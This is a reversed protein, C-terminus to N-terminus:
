QQERSLMLWKLTTEFLKTINFPKTVVDNMGADLCRSRDDDFANGTLAIVPTTSGNPLTRIIKTADLGNMEPMQMDMFILDYQNTRVFDTAKIGNEAMDFVPSFTSLIDSILARNMPEDDVLLIRVGFYDRALIDAASLEGPYEHSNDVPVGKKLSVTFWFTSGVGPESIVGADGGMLNALKRTIALGLGTGGFKRTMSNDAQEFSNFLREATEASIGIGKDEVEFRLLADSTSDKELLTRVVISGSETFKVANSVYNMLSQQLRTVDGILQLNNPVPEVILQLGKKEASGSLISVVNNVINELDVVTEDIELKGAEIKSIDLVSNITELLHQSASDIVDLQEEQRPNVGSRRILYATGSIATLPTRIEHSMNALFSSKALTAKEAADRASSLEAIAEQLEATRQKVREELEEELRKRETIDTALGCLAYISGDERRLPMKTTLFTSEKGDKSLTNTEEFRLTVGQDLVNQDVQQIQTVTASDFFKEDGYGIIESSEVGWMKRLAKNAFQYKGDLDKLFIYADVNETIDHLRQESERLAIESLKRETIDRVSGRLGLFAGEANDVPQCRNEVWRLEKSKTIIRFENGAGLLNGPEINTFCTEMTSKDDPHVIKLMLENDEIFEQAKYGTVRECSPSVYRLKGTPAIWYEWDYTFEAITRYKEESSRLQETRQAVLSELFFRLRALELHTRVRARVEDIDYPKTIYDSAGIRFGSVKQEIEDAVTVFIIPISYGMPTDKIRRCVEYGDMGPMVVDLLILDPPTNGQVLELAKAGNTAVQIQYDAKLAEVLEHLNEPVDDVLLLTPKEGSDFNKFLGRSSPKKQASQLDLQTRVRLLLMEPDVPKVIYDVVGLRLGRGIDDNEGMSTIFVVPIESTSPDSRLHDLVAYGDMDPMKIDLLILDPHPVRKAIELAKAGSTAASIVYKDRLVNMLTHLNDPVDDVILINPRYQAFESM